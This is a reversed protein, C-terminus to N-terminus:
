SPRSGRMQPVQWPPSDPYSPVSATEAEPSSPSHLPTAVQSYHRIIHRYFNAFGLFCHLQNRDTPVPWNPVATVKELDM